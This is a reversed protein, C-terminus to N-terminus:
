GEFASPLKDTEFCSGVIELKLRDYPNPPEHVIDIVVM